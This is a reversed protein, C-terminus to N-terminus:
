QACDMERDPCLVIEPCVPCGGMCQKRLRCTPCANRLTQRFAEFAKSNWAESISYEHLSVGWQHANCGFSCPLMKMDPTIYASWRAGECTDICSADLNRQGRILAPASCSDFGIKFPFEREDVMHLLEKLAPDDYRVIQETKGLGIPKHLLFVVANIGEPFSRRKLRDVAERLSDKMLVYHVNTKVGACVLADIARKTYDGRYWSVAVAGCYRACRSALDKTMGFGSTTFNPVIMNQRCLELIEVFQEHQDPDGRGGLAFQFTRGRCQSVIWEFNELSMNVNDISNGRQYCQVGSSLCLGSLGHVCHGMIGVDLMEPFSAMFADEGTDRGNKLVGTRMYLGTREDFLSVFSDDKKVLM